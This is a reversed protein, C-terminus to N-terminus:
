DMKLRYVEGSFGQATNGGISYLYGHLYVLSPAVCARPLSTLPKSTIKKKQGSSIDFRTVTEMCSQWNSKDARGGAFIIGNRHVVIGASNPLLVDEIQEWTTHFGSGQADRRIPHYKFLHSTNRGSAYVLNGMPANLAHLYTIASVRRKGHDCDNHFGFFPDPKCAPGCIDGIVVDDSRLFCRHDPVPSSNSALTPSSTGEVDVRVGRGYSINRFATFDDRSLTVCAPKDEGLDVDITVMDCSQEYQVLFSLQVPISQKQVSLTALPACCTCGCLDMDTATPGPSGALLSPWRRVAAPVIIDLIGERVIGSSSLKWHSVQLKCDDRLGETVFHVDHNHIFSFCLSKMQVPIQGIFEWQTFFCFFCTTFSCFVDHHIKSFLCKTCM